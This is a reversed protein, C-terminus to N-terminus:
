RNDDCHSQPLEHIHACSTILQWLAHIAVFGNNSQLYGPPWITKMIAYINQAYIDIDMADSETTKM